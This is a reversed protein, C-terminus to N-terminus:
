LKSASTPRRSDVTIYKMRLGTSRSVAAVHAQIDTLRKLDEDSQIVVIFYGLQVQEANLYTPLQKEIGNWFKSNKALKVEQLTRFAFGQSVKFDVPGRGINPEKSVDINNARCYHVVTGLFLNQVARESRPTGNDNLLLEWGGNQEVYHVFADHMHDIAQEFDSTQQITLKLPNALCFRGSADYWEVLGQRDRDLDYPQPPEAETSAVYAARIDPHRKAFDVITAKDVNCTVDQGYELRLTDNTSDYCFDWFDDANITPLSRLYQRPALLIFSGTSPNRPLQTRLPVWREVVVDYQGRVFNAPVMPVNHAQCIRETYTALRRRILCSTIDSIRDAGIGEGLIGIEEFHRLEKVGAKVADWLAVTITRAFGQGSGAGKTGTATYGLCLEPVEPFTLLAEAHRWHISTTDGGAAAVKKFVSNFFAIVEAHSGVFDGTEAAYLLFPDIFLRTDISLIPDFWEDSSRHTVHFHESFKM